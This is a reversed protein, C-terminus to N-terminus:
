PTTTNKEARSDCDGVGCVGVRTINPEDGADM